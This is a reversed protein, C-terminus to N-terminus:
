NVSNFCKFRIFPALYIGLLLPINIVLVFDITIHTSTQVACVQHNSASQDLFM